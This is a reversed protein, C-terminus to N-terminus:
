VYTRAAYIHGSCCAVNRPGRAGLQQGVCVHELIELCPPNLASRSCACVLSYLVDPAPM